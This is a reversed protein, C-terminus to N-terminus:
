RTTKIDDSSLGDLMLSNTPRHQFATIKDCQSLFENWEQDVMPNGGNVLCISSKQSTELDLVTETVVGELKRAGGPNVNRRVSETSYLEYNVGQFLFSVPSAPQEVEGSGQNQLYADLEAVYQRLVLPLIANPALSFDQVSLRIDVPRHPILMHVESQYGTWTRPTGSAQLAPKLGANTVVADPEAGRPELPIELKLLRPHSL